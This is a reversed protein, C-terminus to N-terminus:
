KGLVVGKNAIKRKSYRDPLPNSSTRNLANLCPNKEAIFDMELSAAYIDQLPIDMHVDPRLEQVTWIEMTWLFSEPMNDLILSGIADTRLVHQKLRELPHISRGVYFITDEDRYLYLCQGETREASSELAEKITLLLM